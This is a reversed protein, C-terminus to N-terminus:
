EVGEVFIGKSENRNIAIITDRAYILLPQRKKNQLMQIKTNPTLGMGCIRDMFRESGSVSVIKCAEKEGIQTIIKSM